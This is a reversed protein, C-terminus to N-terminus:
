RLDHALRDESAHVGNAKRINAPIFLNVLNKTYAPDIQRAATRGSSSPSPEHLWPGMVTHM